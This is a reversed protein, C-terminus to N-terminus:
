EDIMSARADVVLSRDVSSITPITIFTPSTATSVMANSSSALVEM